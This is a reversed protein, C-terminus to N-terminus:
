IRYGAGLPVRAPRALSVLDAARRSRRDANDGAVARGDPGRGDCIRGPDAPPGADGIRRPPCLRRRGVPERLRFRPAARRGVPPEGLWRRSVVRRARADDGVGVALVRDRDVGGAPPGGRDRDADGRRTAGMCRVILFATAGQAFIVILGCVRVLDLSPGFIATVPTLLYGGLPGYLLWYDRYPLLGHLTFTAASSSIGGDFQAFPAAWRLAALGVALSAVALVATSRSRLGPDAALASM